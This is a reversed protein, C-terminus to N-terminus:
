FCDAPKTVDPLRGIGSFMFAGHYNVQFGNLRFANLNVPMMKYVSNRLKISRIKEIKEITEGMLVPTEDNLFAVGLTDTKSALLPSPIIKRETQGHALLTLTLFLLSLINKM